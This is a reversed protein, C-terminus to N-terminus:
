FACNQNWFPSLSFKSHIKLSNKKLNWNLNLLIKGLFFVKKKKGKVIDKAVIEYVKEQTANPKIIRDFM